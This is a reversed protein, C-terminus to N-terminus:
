TRPKAHPGMKQAGKESSLPRRSGSTMAEKPNETKLRATAVPLSKCVTKIQRKKEPKKPAQGSVTLVRHAHIPEQIMGSVTHLTDGCDKTVHKIIYSCKGDNTLIVSWTEACVRDQM